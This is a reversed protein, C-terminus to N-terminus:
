AAKAKAKQRCHKIFKVSFEDKATLANALRKKKVKMQQVFIAENYDAPSVQELACSSIGLLLILCLFNSARM